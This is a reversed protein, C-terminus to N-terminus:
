YKKEKYIYSVSLEYTNYFIQFIHFISLIHINAM